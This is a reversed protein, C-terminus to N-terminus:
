TRSRSPLRRMVTNLVDTVETLRFMRALVLFLVVDVITVALARLLAVGLSPDEGLGALLRTAGYAGATSVAAVVLLRVAFRV